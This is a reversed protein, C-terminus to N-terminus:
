HKNLTFVLSLLQNGTYNIIILTITKFFNMALSSLFIALNNLNM